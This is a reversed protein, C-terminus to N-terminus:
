VENPYFASEPPATFVVRGAGPPLTLHGAVSEGTLLETGTAPVLETGRSHNIAFLHRGREVVEVDRPLDRSSIGAEACAALLVADLGDEGLCTSVYWASGRGFPHRTVAPSGAAPGDVYSWVAAAGRATVVEAWVGGTTGGDLRVREGARLPTFEEVTLGLVERLAGPHPGDHVTDHEDVIGSFCSVVLVGGEEVYRRLNASAAETMSYLAPVVVLACGSLDAEPHAFGATLHLDYTAAFWAEARERADIEAGRQAWWSQWDWLLVVDAEVHSGRLAALLGLDRGLRVVEQWVRSETGAHPLMAPHFKEAGFRSARWRSFMAGDSGRAVHALSTRQGNVASTSRELSLWPRGDALSRTLDAAMALHVHPREAGAAPHHGNTVVDVERAWAWYDVSECGSLAVHFTTTVPVGPSAERLVDRERKFNALMAGDTFRVWDLQQAPNRTLRPPRVQEFSNYTQGRVSTGWAENLEKVTTYRDVLWRRFAAAALDCDCAGRETHVNWMALAPHEGYRRALKRTISVAAQQYAPAHHCVTGDGSVPLAMPFKAFFWAPPVVAPTGLSVRIGNGHLLDLLRDLWGFDYRGPEPELLAWTFAGIGIMTVGAERMLRVDEQWVPEPWQEPTYEGGYALAELGIPWHRREM